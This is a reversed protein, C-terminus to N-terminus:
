HLIWVTQNILLVGHIDPSYTAYKTQVEVLHKGWIAFLRWVLLNVQSIMYMSMGFEATTSSQLYHWLQFDSHIRYVGPKRIWM